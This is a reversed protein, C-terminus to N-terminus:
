FLSLFSKIHLHKICIKCLIRVTQRYQSFGIFLIDAELHEGRMDMSRAIMVTENAFVRYRVTAVPQNYFGTESDRDTTIVNHWLNTKYFNNLAPDPVDIVMGRLLSEQWRLITPSNPENCSQVTWNVAGGSAPRDMSIMGRVATLGDGIDDRDTPWIWGTEFDMAEVEPVM